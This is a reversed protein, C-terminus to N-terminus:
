RVRFNSCRGDWLETYSQRWSELDAIASGGELAFQPTTWFRHNLHYLLDKLLKKRVNNEDFSLYTAAKWISLYIYNRKAM